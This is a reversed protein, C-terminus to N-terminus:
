RLMLRSPFYFWTPQRDPHLKFKWSNEGNSDVGFWLEDLKVENLNGGNDTFFKVNKAAVSKITLQQCDDHLISYGKSRMYESVTRAYLVDM